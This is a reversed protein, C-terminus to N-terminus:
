CPPINSFINATRSENYQDKLACIEVHFTDDSAVDNPNLDCSVFLSTYLEQLQLRTGDDIMDSLSRFVLMGARDISVKDTGDHDDNSGALEEKEVDMWQTEQPAQSSHSSLDSSIPCKAAQLLSIHLAADTLLCARLLTQILQVKWWIQCLTRTM